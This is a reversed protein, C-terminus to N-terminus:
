WRPSPASPPTAAHDDLAVGAVAAVDPGTPEVAAMREGEAVVVVRAPHAEARQAHDVLVADGGAGAERRVAVRVHLDEAVHERARQRVLVAKRALATAA